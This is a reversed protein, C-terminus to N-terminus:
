GEKRPIEYGHGGGIRCQSSRGRAPYRCGTVARGPWPWSGFQVRAERASDTNM